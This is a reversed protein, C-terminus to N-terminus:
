TVISASTVKTVGSGCWIMWVTGAERRSLYPRADQRRIAAEFGKKFHQRRFTAGRGISEF